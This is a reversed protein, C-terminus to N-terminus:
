GSEWPNHSHGVTGDAIEYGAHYDVGFARGAADQSRRRPRTDNRTGDEMAVNRQARLYESRLRAIACIVPTDRCRNACASARETV